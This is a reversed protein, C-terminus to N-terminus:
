GCDRSATSAAARQAEGDAILRLCAIGAAASVPHANHTGPNSVKRWGPDDRFELLAMVAARGAVAGGPMGGALIKGLTTLDPTVGSLEQAGGPAWRFGTVVEDFILLAGHRNTADRLRELAGSPLPISGWGEGSPELIVAPGVIVNLERPAAVAAPTSRTWFEDAEPDSSMQTLGDPRM